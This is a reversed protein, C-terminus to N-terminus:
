LCDALFEQTFDQVIKCSRALNQELDQVKKELKQELDQVKKIKSAQKLHYWGICELNDVFKEELLFM